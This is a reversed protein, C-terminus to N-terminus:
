NGYKFIWAEAERYIMVKTVPDTRLNLDHGAGPIPILKHVIKDAEL